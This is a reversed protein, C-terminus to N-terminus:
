ITIYKKQLMHNFVTKNIKLKKALTTRGLHKNELIFRLQEETFDSRDMVEILQDPMELEIHDVLPKTPRHKKIDEGNLIFDLEKYVTSRTLQLEKAIQNGSMGSEYLNAIVTQRTNLEM